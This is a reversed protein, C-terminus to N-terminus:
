GCMSMSCTPLTPLSANAMRAVPFSSFARFSVSPVSVTSVYKRYTSPSTTLSTRLNERIKQLNVTLDDAIDELEAADDESIQERVDDLVDKMDALLKESMKSFNIVFNLPNQIEHAIGASLMGLSALKQQNLLHQQLTELETM